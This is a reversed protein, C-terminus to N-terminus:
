VIGSSEDKAQISRAKVFNVKEDTFGNLFFQVAAIRALPRPSVM